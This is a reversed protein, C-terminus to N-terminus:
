AAAGHLPICLSSVLFVPITSCLEPLRIGTMANIGNPPVHHRSEPRPCLRIKKEAQGPSDGPHPMEELLPHEFPDDEAGADQCQESHSQQHPPLDAQEIIKLWVGDNPEDPPQSAAQEEGGYFHGPGTYPIRHRGGEIEAGGIKDTGAQDIEQDREVGELQGPLPMM